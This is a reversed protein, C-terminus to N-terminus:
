EKEGVSELLRQAEKQLGRLGKRIAEDNQEKAASRLTELAELFPTVACVAAGGKLQHLAERLENTDGEQVIRTLAAMQEALEACFRAYLQDVLTRSGGSIRMAHEIDRLPDSSHTAESKDICNQITSVLEEADVPKIIVKDIGAALLMQRHEPVADATLAIIPTRAHEPLSRIENAAAIGDMIPMYIDLLIVDFSSERAAEVAEAGNEAEVIQGQRDLILHIILRRNIENDDAVLFHRNVLNSGPMSSVALHDPLTELEQSHKEGTAVSMMADALTIPSVPKVLYAAAGAILFEHEVESVPASACVIIPKESTRWPELWQAPSREYLQQAPIGVLVIDYATSGIRAPDAAMTWTTGIDQLVQSLAESSAADSENVLVHLRRIEASYSPATGIETRRLRITVTFESGMGPESRVSIGGGMAAALSKTIALGLGTGQYYRTTSSAQSFADFLRPLENPAIGIGTDAVVFRLKYSMEDIQDAAIRITVQGRETFKIANSLLNVLIQRIRLRDGRLEEPINRDVIVAMEISKESAEPAFFHATEYVLSRLGLPDDALHLKGSEIKSFDLLDNIIALLDKASREITEVQEKQREDLVTRKLLGLFGLVGNMPTRIEHSMHALFESKVQNAKIADKRALDLQVNRVELEEMTTRLEATADDVQMQLEEQQRGLASIMGNIGEQLARLEGSSTVPVGVSFNKEGVKRVSESIQELPRSIRRSAQYLFFATLGLGFLLIVVSNRVIQEMRASFEASDLALQVHGLKETQTVSTDSDLSILPPIVEETFTSTGPKRSSGQPTKRLNVRLKGDRDFIQIQIVRPRKLYRSATQELFAKDGVFLGYVAAAALERAYARGQESFATEADSIRSLIIYATVTIALVVTPVLGFFLFRHSIKPGAPKRM